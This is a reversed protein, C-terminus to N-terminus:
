LAARALDKAARQGLAGRIAPPLKQGHLDIWNIVSNKAGPLAQEVQRAAYYPNVRRRLPRVVMRALYLGAGALYAVFAIQRASGPLDFRRDLAAMVIAYALTGALFGLLGTTLDLVRIRSEARGLHAAVYADYKAGQQAQARGLDTAM